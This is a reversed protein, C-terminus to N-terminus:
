STHWRCRCQYALHVYAGNEGLTGDEYADLPLPTLEVYVRHLRATGEDPGTEGVLGVAAAAGEFAIRIASATDGASLAADLRAELPRLADLAAQWTETTAM